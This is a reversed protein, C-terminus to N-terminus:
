PAPQDVPVRQVMEVAARGIKHVLGSSPSPKPSTFERSEVVEGNAVAKIVLRFLVGKDKPTVEGEILARASKKPAIVCGKAVIARIGSKFSGAGRGTFAGFTVRVKDITPAPAKALANTALGCCFLLGLLASRRSVDM